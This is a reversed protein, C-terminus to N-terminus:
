IISCTTFHVFNHLSYHLKVESNVRIVNQLLLAIHIDMIWIASRNCIILSQPDSTTETTKFLIDEDIIWKLECFEECIKGYNWLGDCWSVVINCLQLPHTLDSNNLWLGIYIFIVYRSDRYQLWCRQAVQSHSILFIENPSDTQSLWFVWVHM